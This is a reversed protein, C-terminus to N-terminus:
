GDPHTEPTILTLDPFHIRYFRPDRTLLSAGVSSAHGGILFDALLSKAQGPQRARRYQQFAIGAVFAAEASLPEVAILLPKMDALFAGVSGFRPAVEGAVVASAIVPGTATADLVRAHSWNFWEHDRGVIDIVVNADVFIM